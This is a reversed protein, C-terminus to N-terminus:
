AAPSSSEAAESSKLDSKYEEVQRQLRTILLTPALGFVAAWVLGLPNKSLSFVDELRPPQSALQTAEESDPAGVNTPNALPPLLLVLVVGGIAALGSFLPTHILRVAALGFDDALVHDRASAARLQRFLGVSAGVLYFSVAALVIDKSVGALLALILGLYATFGMFMMTAFLNGKARVMGERRDDRYENITKRVAAAIAAASVRTSAAPARKPTTPSAPTQATSAAASASSSLANPGPSSAEGGGTTVLDLNARLADRNKINSGTLRLQDHFAEEAIRSADVEARLLAEEAAHARRWAGVYGAQSAWRLGVSTGGGLALEDNLWALHRQAGAAGGARRKELEAAWTALEDRKQWLDNFASMNAESPWSLRRCAFAAGILYVLGVGFGTAVVDGRGFNPRLLMAAVTAGATVGPVLASAAVLGTVYAALGPRGTRSRKTPGFVQEHSVRRDLRRNVPERRRVAFTMLVAAILTLATPRAPRERAQIPRAELAKSV